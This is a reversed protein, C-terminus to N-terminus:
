CVNFQFKGKCQIDLERMQTVVRQLDDPLNDMTDLYNELYTASCLAEVAAQNLMTMNKYDNFNYPYKERPIQITKAYVTFWDNTNGESHQIIGREPFSRKVDPPVLLPTSILYVHFNM